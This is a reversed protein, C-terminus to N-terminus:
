PQRKAMLRERVFDIHGRLAYFQDAFSAPVRMTNVAMEIEDLRLLLKKREEDPLDGRLGHELLLLARYWRYFRLKTKWGLVTPIVRIGPILVVFVPVFVLLVRNVVSALWFPLSSYLFGKGSKYFRLAESSIPYEHELPAPFEGKRKMLSAGGHVERAAELVLDCLAPHLDSRALLEVTPGVLYIDRKPVNLGFDLAGMPLELRNLYSIRRTLADAQAFSLIHIEPELLLKRMLQPSASDTTLFVADLAGSELAKAAEEAESAVLVTQGGPEIGGLKLLALSLARTGSGVPGIALRKGKLESLLSIAVEGRYFVLLPEYAVSGLSFIAEKKVANSVGGQVFGIDVKVSSDNLRELNEQSGESSLIRLKVGNRELIKGYKEANLQFASGPPGTTITIVRPPALHFFWFVAFVLISLILVVTGVAIARSLGFIDAFPKLFKATISTHGQDM